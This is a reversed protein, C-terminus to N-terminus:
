PIFEGSRVDCTQELEKAIQLINQNTERKALMTFQKAKFNEANAIQM